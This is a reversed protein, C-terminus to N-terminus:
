KMLLWGSAAHAILASAARFKADAHHLSQLNPM